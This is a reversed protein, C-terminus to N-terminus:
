DVGTRLTVVAHLIHLEGFGLGLIALQQSEPLGFAALALAAFLAGLIALGRTAVASAHILACGYLLLWVGPIAHVVGARWLVVTLVAGVFLSPLLRAFLKVAAAALLQGRSRREGLMLAGAVAGAAAAILWVELWYPRLADTSALATAGLGIAGVTFGAAGPVAVTGATELASRLDRLMLPAHAENFFARLTRM